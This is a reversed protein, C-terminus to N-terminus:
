RISPKGISCFIKHWKIDLVQRIENLVVSDFMFYCSNICQPLFSYEQTIGM